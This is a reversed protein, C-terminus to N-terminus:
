RLQIPQLSRREQSFAQPPRALAGLGFERCEQHSAGRIFQAAYYCRNLLGGLPIEGGGNRFSQREQVPQAVGFGAAGRTLSAQCTLAPYGAM